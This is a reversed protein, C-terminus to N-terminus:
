LFDSIVTMMEIVILILILLDLVRRECLRQLMNDKGGIVYGQFRM